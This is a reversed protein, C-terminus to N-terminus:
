HWCSGRQTAASCGRSTIACAGVAFHWRRAGIFGYGLKRLLPTRPPASLWGLAQWLVRKVDGAVTFSSRCLFFLLALLRRVPEGLALVGRWIAVDLLISNFRDWTTLGRCPVRGAPGSLAMPPRKMVRTVLLPCTRLGPADSFCVPGCSHEPLAPLFPSVSSETCHRQRWTPYWTSSLKVHSRDRLGTSCIPQMRTLGAKASM